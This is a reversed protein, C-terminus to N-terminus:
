RYSCKDICVVIEHTFSTVNLIIIIITVTNDTEHTIVHSSYDDKGMMSKSSYYYYKNDVFNCLIIILGRLDPPSLSKQAHNHM